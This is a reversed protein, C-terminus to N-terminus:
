EEGFLKKLNNFKENKFNDFTDKNKKNSSMTKKTLEVLKNLNELYNKINENSKKNYFRHEFYGVKKYFVFYEIVEDLIKSEISTSLIWGYKGIDNLNTQLIVMKPEENKNLFLSSYITKNKNLFFDFFKCWFLKIPYKKQYDTM